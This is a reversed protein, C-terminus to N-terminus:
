RDSGVRRLAAQESGIQLEGLREEASYARHARVYDRPGRNRAHMQMEWGYVCFEMGAAYVAWRRRCTSNRNIHHQIPSTAQPGNSDPRLARHQSPISVDTSAPPNPLFSRACSKAVQLRIYAALPQDRGEDPGGTGFEPSIDVTARRAAKSRERGYTVRM